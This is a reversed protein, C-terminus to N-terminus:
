EHYRKYRVGYLFARLQSARALAAHMNVNIRTHSYTRWDSTLGHRVSQTLVYRYTLRAQKEDRLCGDFYDHHWGERWFPTRRKPLMDNVLKAVSGHLRQMMPGLSEGHRLYGITHYHNDMLSTVWPVFGFENTYHGFREWFLLKAQESRFAPYRDRCRATIFYTQNDRYWHQLSDAAGTGGSKRTHGM